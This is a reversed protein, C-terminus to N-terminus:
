EAYSIIYQLTGDERYINEFWTEYFEGQSEFCVKRYSCNHNADYECITPLTNRSVEYTRIVDGSQNYDYFEKYVDASGLQITYQRLNGYQDYRNWAEYRPTTSGPTLAKSHICNGDDDHENWIEEESNLSHVLNGKSDYEYTTVKPARESDDLNTYTIRRTMQNKNNYVAIWEEGFSDAYHTQNGRADYELTVSLGRAKCSVPQGKENCITISEVYVTRKETGSKRTVEIQVCDGLQPLTSDANQAFVAAVCFALTLAILTKKM